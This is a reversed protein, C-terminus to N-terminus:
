NRTLIDFRRREVEARSALGAAFCLDPAYIHCQNIERIGEDLQSLLERPTVEPPAAIRGTVVHKTTQEHRAHNTEPNEWCTACLAVFNETHSYVLADNALAKSVDALQRPKDQTGAFDFFQYNRRLLTALHPFVPIEENDYKHHTIPAGDFLIVDGYNVGLDYYLVSRIIGHCASLREIWITEEEGPDDNERNRETLPREALRVKCQPFRGDPLDFRGMEIRHGMDRWVALAVAGNGAGTACIGTNWRTAEGPNKSLAAAQNAAMGEEFRGRTKLFLGYNYYRYATKPDLEILRKYAREAIEDEQRGFVRAATSLGELLWVEDEYKGLRWAEALFEITRPFIPHDPPAQNLFDINIAKDLNEGILGVIVVDDANSAHVTELASLAHERSLCDANVIEMLAKAADKDQSQSALLPEVASWAANRDGDKSLELARKVLADIAEESLGRGSDGFM